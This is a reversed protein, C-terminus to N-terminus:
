GLKLKIQRSKGVSSGQQPLQYVVKGYGSVSVRYGLNELLYMADSLVMGRVDPVINEKLKRGHMLLQGDRSELSVWESDINGGKMNLGLISSISIMDSKVAYRVIPINDTVDNHKRGPNYYDDIEMVFIKDAIQKFVPGAVLGGYIIGSAPNSVVVICSYKPDDSPFFGAFSAQYIKKKYSGKEAVLATGTKGAIKYNSSRINKATGNEVVGEMMRKLLVVTKKSVVSKNIVEPYYRLIAKDVDRIEKVFMPRMMKGDNAIANYFTLMQLPTMQLEYGVSMWPFTIGSWNRNNPQKFFPKGEGAIGTNLPISLSMKEIDDIFLQPRKRFNDFVLSSFAVNSSLEFAQQFTIKGYGDPHADRMTEEYFQKKGDRTDIVDGLRVIGRELLIAATILKFTSGPEMSAGLAYNYIESYGGSKNKKLNAIAKIHGTKVEMVVACGYDADHRLLTKYLADETVDQINIDITTIIDKGDEPELENEFNIPIWNGGSIRQMLRKGSRGALYEDYAGELGVGTVDAVKYGLTREALLKFPYIRISKQETILGGKFRGKDFFPFDKLAQMQNHNIRRKLLYYRENKDRAKSIREKYKHAREDMFLAALKHCLSDIHEHYYVEDEWLKTRFDIRVDYIPISTVLLKDDSSYINGRIPEITRYRTTLSDSMTRWHEGENYQIKLVQVSIMVGLVIFFVFSLYVRIM